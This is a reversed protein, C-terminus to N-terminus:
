EWATVDLVVAASGTNRVAIAYLRADVADIGTLADPLGDADETVDDALTPVMSTVAANLILPSQCNLDCAPMWRPNDGSPTDDSTSEPTDFKLRVSLYGGGILCLRLHQFDKAQAEAWDWVKITEGAAITYRRHDRKNGDITVVKVPATIAGGDDIRKGDVELSAVEYVRLTGSM